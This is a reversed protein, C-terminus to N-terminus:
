IKFGVNEFAIGNRIAEYDFHTRINKFWGMIPDDFEPFFGQAANESLIFANRIHRGIIAGVVAKIDSATDERYKKSKDKSLKKKATITKIKNVYVPSIELRDALEWYSLKVNEARLCILRYLMLLVKDRIKTDRIGFKDIPIIQEPLLIGSKMLAEHDDLHKTVQSFIYKKDAGTPIMMVVSRPTGVNRWHGNIFEKFDNVVIEKWEDEIAVYNDLTTIRIATNRNKNHDKKIEHNTEYWTKFDCAWVDGWIEYTKLVNDFYMPLQEKQELTLLGNKRYKNAMEYTPSIRLMLFWQELRKLRLKNTKLFNVPLVVGVM